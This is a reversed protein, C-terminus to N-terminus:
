AFSYCGKPTIVVTEEHRIGGLDPVYLGPEITITMGSELRVNRDAGDYRIIPFEHTELGIGHGLSHLFRGEMGAKRMVHRAAEDLAGIRTGPRCLKLSAQFAARVVAEMKALQPDIKGFHFVRTMDSRYHNYIVGLDCLVLDNKKLRRKGPRYHPMATNEGFAIIPEFAVGSAGKQRCFAEFEWSLEAETMGIKAIKRVHLFGKRALAASKKMWSIEAADKVLRIEKLLGDIPKLRSFKKKLRVAQDVSTALSDFAIVGTEPLNVSYSEIRFPSKEEAMQQYRGDVCLCVDEETVVLRGRSLGLGTLYYLDTSAEVLCGQVKWAKFKERLAKLRATYNFSSKSTM